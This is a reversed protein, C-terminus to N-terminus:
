IFKGAAPGMEHVRQRSVKQPGHLVSLPRSSVLGVLRGTQRPILLRSALQVCRFHSIFGGVMSLFEIKFTFQRIARPSTQRKAPQAVCGLVLVSYTRNGGGGSSGRLWYRMLKPFSSSRPPRLLNLSNTTPWSFTNLGMQFGYPTVVVFPM